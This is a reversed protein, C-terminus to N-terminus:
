DLLYWNSWTRWLGCGTWSKPLLWAVKDRGSRAQTELFASLTWAQNVTEDALATGEIWTTLNVGALGLPYLSGRTLPASHRGATSNEGDPQLEVRRYGRPGAFQDLLSGPLTLYIFNPLSDIKHNDYLASLKQLNVVPEYSTMGMAMGVVLTSELVQKESLKSRRAADALIAKLKAPDTSDLVYLKPGKALLGTLNYATKDEASGGMGAWVIFRLRTRHTKEIASRIEKLEAAIREPWDKAAEARWPLNLVGYSNKTVHGGAGTEVGMAVLPSKAPDLVALGKRRAMSDLAKLRALTNNEVFRDLQPKSPPSDNFLSVVVM